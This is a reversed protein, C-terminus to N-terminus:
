TGILNKFNNRIHDSIIINEHSLAWIIELSIRIIAFQSQVNWVKALYFQAIFLFADGKCFPDHPMQILFIGNLSVPSPFRLGLMVM